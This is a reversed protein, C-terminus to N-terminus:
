FTLVSRVAMDNLLHMIVCVCILLGWSVRVMWVGDCSISERLKIEVSGVVNLSKM